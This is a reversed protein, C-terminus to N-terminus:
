RLARLYIMMPMKRHRKMILKQAKKHKIMQSQMEQLAEGDSKANDEDSNGNDTDDVANVTDPEAEVNGTDTTDTKM